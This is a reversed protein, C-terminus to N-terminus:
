ANDATRLNHRFGRGEQLRGSDRNYKLISLQHVINLYSGLVKQVLPFNIMRREERQGYSSWQVPVTCFRGATICGCVEKIDIYRDNRSMILNPGWVTISSCLLTAAFDRNKYMCDLMPTKYLVTVYTEACSIVHSQIDHLELRRM